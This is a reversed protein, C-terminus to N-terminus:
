HIIRGFKDRKYKLYSELNNEDVGYQKMEKIMASKPVNNKGYYTEMIKLFTGNKIIIDNGEKFNAILENYRKHKKHFAVGAPLILFPKTRGFNIYEEKDFLQHIIQLGTLDLLSVLDARGSKVFKIGQQATELFYIKFGLDQLMETTASKRITVIKLDSLSKLSDFNELRKIQEPKLNPKYYVCCFNIYLQNINVADKGAKGKLHIKGPAFGDVEHNEFKFNRRLLPYIEVKSKMGVAEFAAIILDSAMGTQEKYYFPPYDFAAIHVNTDDAHLNLNLFVLLALFCVITSLFM